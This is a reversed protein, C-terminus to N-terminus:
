LDIPVPLIFDGSDLYDLAEKDKLGCEVLNIQPTGVFGAVFTNRPESYLEEPTGKQVVLGDKMLVVTDALTM